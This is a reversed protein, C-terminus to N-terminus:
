RHICFFTVAGSGQWAVGVYNAKDSNECFFERRNGGCFWIVATSTAVSVGQTSEDGRELRLDGEIGWVMIERDICESRYEGLQQAVGSSASASFIASSVAIGLLGRVVEIM